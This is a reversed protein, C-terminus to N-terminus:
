FRDFTSSKSPSRYIKANNPKEGKICRVSNAQDKYFGKKKWGGLSEYTFFFAYDAYDPDQDATWFAATYDYAYFDGNFARFGGRVEFSPEVHIIKDLENATPLRWGEPCARKAMEWTYLRGTKLCTRDNNEFCVSPVKRINMNQTMWLNGKIWKVNYVKNDRPDTITGELKNLDSGDDTRKIALKEQAAISDRKAKEIAERRAQKEAKTEFPSEDWPSALANVASIFFVALFSRMKNRM